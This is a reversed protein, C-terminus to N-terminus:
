EKQKETLSEQLAKMHLHQIIKDKHPIPLLQILEDPPILGAEGLALVLDLYQFTNVPSLTHAYVEVRLVEGVYNKLQSNHYVMSYLAQTMVMEFFQEFALALFRIPSLAVSLFQQYQTASRINKPPSTGLSAESVFLIDELHKEYIQIQSLFVQPDSKTIYQDVRTDVGELLIVGNPRLGKMVNQEEISLMSSAIILPPYKLLQLVEEFEAYVKKLKVILNSLEAVPSNGYPFELRPDPVFGIVPMLPSIYPSAGHYLLFDEYFIAMLYQKAKHSYYYIEKIEVLEGGVLSPPTLFVETKEVEDLFTEKKDAVVHQLIVPPIDRTTSSVNSVIPVELESLYKGYKRQFTAKPMRHYVTIIQDPHDFPLQPYYFQVDYPEILVVKPPDSPIVKVFVAGYILSTRLVDYFLIDVGEDYFWGKLAKELPKTDSLSNSVIEFVVNDPLYVMSTINQVYQKLRNRGGITSSYYLEEINQFYSRLTNRNADAIQSVEKLTAEDLFDLDLQREGIM